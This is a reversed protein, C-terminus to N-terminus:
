DLLYMIVPPLFSSTELQGGRVCRTYKDHAKFYKYSSGTYFGVGWAYFTNYDFTTSSWYGLSIYNEFNDVNLAPNYRSRDSISLLENINPLRWDNHGGLTMNNECYDIAEQWSRITTRVIENDQWQLGTVSDTVIETEDDRSFNSTELQGGRVCRLYHDNKRPYSDSNGNLFGVSWAYSPSNAATTSSWYYSSSIHEFINETVSPNYKGNDVLTELEEISPLRWEGGDLSLSFCYNAANQWEAQKIDGGNDSYNDQWELGTVNDKVVGVASRYGRTWGTQYYGDDKISGDTIVVGDTDYSQTQGTKLLLGDSLALATLILTSILIKFM